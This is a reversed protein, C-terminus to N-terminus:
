SARIHFRQSVVSKIIQILQQVPDEWCDVPHSRWWVDIALKLELNMGIGRREFAPIKCSWDILDTSANAVCKGHKVDRESRLCLTKNQQFLGVGEKM